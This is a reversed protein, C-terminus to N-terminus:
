FFVRPSVFLCLLTCACACKMIWWPAAASALSKKCLEDFMLLAGASISFLSFSIHRGGFIGVHSSAAAATNELLSSLEKSLKGLFLVLLKLIMSSLEITLM